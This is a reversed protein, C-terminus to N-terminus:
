LEGILKVKRLVTKEFMVAKNFLDVFNDSKFLGVARVVGLCCIVTINLLFTTFHVYGPNLQTKFRNWFVLTIFSVYFLQFCCFIKNFYNRKTEAPIFYFDSNNKQILTVTLINAAYNSTDLVTRSLKPKLKILPTAIKYM